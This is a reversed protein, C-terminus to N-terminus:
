TLQHATNKEYYNMARNSLDEITINEWLPKRWTTYDFNERKILVVFREAEVIDMKEFLANYGESKIVTDTRM